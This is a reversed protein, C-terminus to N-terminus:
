NFVSLHHVITSSKDSLKPQPLIKNINFCPYVSNLLVCFPSKGKNTHKLWIMLENLTRIEQELGLVITQEDATLTFKRHACGHVALPDALHLLGPEERLSDLLIHGGPIVWVSLGGLWPIHFCNPSESDGWSLLRTGERSSTLHPKFPFPLPSSCSKEPNWFSKFRLSPLGSGLWPEM